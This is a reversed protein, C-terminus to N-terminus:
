IQTKNNARKMTIELTEANFELEVNNRWNLFEECTIRLKNGSWEHFSISDMKIPGEIEKKGKLTAEILLISYYDAILFNGFPTVTLNRYQPHSEYEILEGNNCDLM